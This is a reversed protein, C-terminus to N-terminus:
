VVNASNGYAASSGLPDLHRPKNRGPSRAAGALDILSLLAICGAPIGIVLMRVNRDALALFAYGAFPVTFAVRPQTDEDLQFTWPDHGQNADGKTRIRDADTSRDIDVIRHTVLGEVGAEAPPNYTIIDGNKLDAVPVSKEFALAGREFTGSMSGGTIAYRDYGVLGPLVFALSGLIAVGITLNVL